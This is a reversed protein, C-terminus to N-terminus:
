ISPGIAFQWRPELYGRVTGASPRGSWSVDVRLPGIPLEFRPGLGFVYRVDQDGYPTRSISPRFQDWRIYEPRAWVNGFDVFTELGLNGLVPLRALPIRLEINAQLIALGGSAPPEPIENEDYGRISNVGGTRFRDPLPIGAVKPDDSGVVINDQPGFPTIVGTRIRTALVSNRIPTFWSQSLEFKTFDSTSKLVGGTVEFSAITVNGRRTLLFNDRLDREFVLLLSHTRYTPATNLQIAVKASDTTLSDDTFTLNQRAFVNKQTLRVTTVRNVDRRLQFNVGQFTQHLVYAGGPTNEQTRDDVWEAYPGAEARLRVGLLWPELIGLDIRARKFQNFKAGLAAQGAIATQIGRGALNKLGWSANLKVKESSSSGVGVELWRPPRAVARVEYDVTTGDTDPIATFQVQTFLGTEYLREQSRIVRDRREIDGTKLLLERLVLNSKVPQYGHAYVEGIRFRPGEEIRYTIRVQHNADSRAVGSVRPRFGHDQYVASIVLSDLQMYGPDFPKDPRAWLKRRIDGELDPRVKEIQVDRIQSRPGEIVDFVVIAHDDDKGPLVRFTSHAELFGSHHYVSGIALTDARLFDLRLTSREGWPRWWPPVRTRMVHRLSGSSIGSVGTLKVSQVTKLEYFLETQTRAPAPLILAFAIFGATACFRERPVRRL